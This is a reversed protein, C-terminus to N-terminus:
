TGRAAFNVVRGGARPDDGPQGPEEGQDLRTVPRVPLPASLRKSVIGELDMKCAHLFITAGDDATHESLVIGVQRRIRPRQHSGDSNERL